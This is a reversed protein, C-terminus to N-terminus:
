KKLSEPNVSWQLPKSGEYLYVKVLSETDSIFDIDCYAKTLPSDPDEKMVEDFFPVDRYYLEGDFTPNNRIQAIARQLLGDAALRGKTSTALADVRAIQRQHSHLIAIGALSLVVAAFTCLLLVSGQRRHKKPRIM